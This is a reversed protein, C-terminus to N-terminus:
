LIINSVANFTVLANVFQFNTLYQSIIVSSTIALICYPAWFVLNLSLMIFAKWRANRRATDVTVVWLTNSRASAPASQRRAEGKTLNPLRLETKHGNFHVSGESGNHFLDLLFNWVRRKFAQTRTEPEQEQPTVEPRTAATASGNEDICVTLSSSNKIRMPVDVSAARRREMDGEPAINQLRKTKSPVRAMLNDSEQTVNSEIPSEHQRARKCCCFIDKVIDSLSVFRGKSAGKLIYLILTYCILEMAYPIVCITALHLVNYLRELYLWNRNNTHLEELTFGPESPFDEKAYRLTGNEFFYIPSKNALEHQMYAYQELLELRDYFDVRHETWISICQPYGQPTTKQRFLILQPGACILALIWAAALSLRTNYQRKKINRTVRNMKATILLRDAAVLVQMNATLHFGFTSIFKFLRCGIDGGFWWYSHIWAFQTPAYIFLVICDAVSLSIKYSFLRAALVLHQRSSRSRALRVVTFIFAPLGVCFAIGYMWLELTYSFSLEVRQTEQQTAESM